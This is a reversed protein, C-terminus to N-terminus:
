GGAIMKIPLFIVEEATPDFGKMSEGQKGDGGVRYPALGESVFQDFMRHAERIDGMSLRNWVLRKDGEKQDLIRFIGFDPKGQMQAFDSDSPSELTTEIKRAMRGQSIPSFEIFNIAPAQTM